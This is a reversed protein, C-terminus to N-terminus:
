MKTNNIKEKLAKPDIGNELLTIYEYLFLTNSLTFIHANKDTEQEFYLNRYIVDFIPTDCTFPVIESFEEIQKEGVAELVENLRDKMYTLGLALAISYNGVFIQGEPVNNASFIKEQIVCYILIAAQKHRDLHKKSADAPKGNSLADASKDNSLTDASVHSMKDQIDIYVKCFLNIFSKEKDEDFHINAYMPSIINSFYRKLSKWAFVATKKM